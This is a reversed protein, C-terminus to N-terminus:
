ELVQTFMSKKHIELHEYNHTERNGHKVGNIQVM